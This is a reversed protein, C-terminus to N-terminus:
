HFGLSFLSCLSKSFRSWASPTHLPLSVHSTVSHNAQTNVTQLITLFHIEVDRNFFFDFNIPKTAPSM